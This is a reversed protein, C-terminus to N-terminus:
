DEQLNKSLEFSRILRTIVNGKTIWADCKGYWVTCNGFNGLRALVYQLKYFFASRIKESRLMLRYSLTGRGRVTGVVGMHVAVRGNRTRYGTTSPRRSVM